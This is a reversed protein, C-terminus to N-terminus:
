GISQRRESTLVKGMCNELLTITRDFVHAEHIVVHANAQGAVDFASQAVHAHFLSIPRGLFALLQVQLSDVRRRSLFILFNEEVNM